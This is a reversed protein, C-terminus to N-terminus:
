KIVKIIVETTKETAKEKLRKLKEVDDKEKGLWSEKVEEKVKILEDLKTMFGM